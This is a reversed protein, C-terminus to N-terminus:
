FIIFITNIRFVLWSLITCLPDLVSDFSTLVSTIRIATQYSVHTPTVNLVESLQLMFVQHIRVDTDRKDSKNEEFFIIKWDTAGNELGHQIKTLFM